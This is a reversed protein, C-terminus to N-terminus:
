FQFAARVMAAHSDYDDKMDYEYNAVIEWNGASHYTLGAGLTYTEEAPEAGPSTFVFGPAGVFSARSQVADGIVDYRAGASLEPMFYSEDDGAFLWGMDLGLGLDCSNVDESAVSLNLDGAGTETYNDASYSSYSAQLSPTLRMTKGIKLEYDLAAQAVLQRASFDATAILSSVGGVQHRTTSVAQWGYALAGQLQLSDTMDYSAYLTLQSSGVDTDTMNGNKSNVETSARSVALGLVMNEMNTGSDVGLAVGATDAEFGDLTLRKDQEVQQGFGQAWVQPGGQASGGAALGSTKGTHLAALRQETLTVSQGSVTRAAVLQGGDVTPQLSELVDNVAAATAAGQIKGQVMNYIGNISTAQTTMFWNGIQRSSVTSATDNITHIQSIVADLDNGNATLAIDYMYSNDTVAAPATAAGTNGRIVQAVTGAVLPQSSGGLVFNVTDNSLDVAGGASVRLVGIADTGASRNVGLNFIGAAADATYGGRSRLTVGPNIIITGDNDLGNEIDVDDEFTASANSKVNLTGVRDNDGIRNKFTVNTASSGTGVNIIGEGDTGGDIEGQVTQASTGDFQLIAQGVGDNLDIGDTFTNIAGGLVLTADNSAHGAGGTVEVDDGIFVNGDIDFIATASGAANGGATIELDDEEIEFNGRVNLQLADSTSNDSAANVIMKGEGAFKLDDSVTVTLDGDSASNAITFDGNQMEVSGFTVALDNASGTTVTLTTDKDYSDDVFNGITFTNNGSGDNATGDNSITIAVSGNGKVELNDGARANAVDGSNQGGSSAWTHNGFNVELDAAQSTQPGALCSIAAIAMATLLKKQYSKKM